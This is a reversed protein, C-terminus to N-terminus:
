RRRKVMIMGCGLAKSKGVGSYLAQEFLAPETIRLAGVFDVSTYIIPPQLSKRIVQHKHWSQVCAIEPGSIAQNNSDHEGAWDSFDDQTTALLHFGHREGQQHLWKLAAIFQVNRIEDSPAGSEKARLKADMM